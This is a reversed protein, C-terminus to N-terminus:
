AASQQAVLNAVSARMTAKARLAQVRKAVNEVFATAREVVVHRQRDITVIHYSDDLVVMDVLGKV